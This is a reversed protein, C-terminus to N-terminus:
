FKFRSLYNLLPELCTIVEGVLIQHLGVVKQLETCYVSRIFNRDCSWQGGAACNVLGTLLYKIPALRLSGWVLPVANRFHTLTRAQKRGYVMFKLHANLYKGFISRGRASLTFAHIDVTLPLTSGSQWLAANAVSASVTLNLM